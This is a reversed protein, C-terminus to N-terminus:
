SVSSCLKFFVKKNCVNVTILSDPKDLTTTKNIIGFSIVSLAQVPTIILHMM